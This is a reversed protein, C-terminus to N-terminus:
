QKPGFGEYLAFDSGLVGLNAFVCRGVRDIKCNGM